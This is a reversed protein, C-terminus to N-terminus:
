GDCGAVADDAKPGFQAVFLGLVQRPPAGYGLQALGAITVDAGNVVDRRQASDSTGALISIPGGIGEKTAGTTLEIAGAKEREATGTTLTINGSQGWPGAAPTDLAISGSTSHRSFGSTLAIHGGTTAEMQEPTIAYYTVKPDAETGGAEISVNGGPGSGGKGVKIEVYGATGRLHDVDHGRSSRMTWDREMARFNSFADGTTLSIYGSHGARSLGTAVDISGSQGYEGSDPTTVGISGSSFSGSSGSNITVSGGIGNLSFGGAVEVTHKSVHKM